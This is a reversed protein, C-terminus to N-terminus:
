ISHSLLNSVKEEFDINNITDKRLEKEIIASIEDYFYDFLIKIM